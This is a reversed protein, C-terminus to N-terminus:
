RIGMSIQLESCQGRVNPPHDSLYRRAQRSPFPEDLKNNMSKGHQRGRVDAIICMRLSVSPISCPWPTATDDARYKGNPRTPLPFSFYFFSNYFDLATPSRTETECRGGAGLVRREGGALDVRGLELYKILRERFRLM